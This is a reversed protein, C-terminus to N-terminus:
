VLSTIFMTDIIYHILDTISINRLRLDNATTAPIFFLFVVCFRCFDFALFVFKPKVM